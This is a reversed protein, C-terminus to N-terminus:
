THNLDFKLGWIPLFIAFVLILYIFYQYLAYVVQSLSSYRKIDLTDKNHYCEAKFFIFIDNLTKITADSLILLTSM